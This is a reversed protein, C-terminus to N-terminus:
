DAINELYKLLVERGRVQARLVGMFIFVGGTKRDLFIIERPPTRWSHTRLVTIIKKSARQPLDSAKWDYNGSSDFSGPPVRPDEPELFPEVTEFCFEEFLARLSPDDSPHIFNLVMAANRFLVEDGNVAGKIMQRYANMFENPYERTAGFDFLIIQDSGNPSLRIRYNGLHPDTQVINWEFLEKFYLDLYSLALRNRRELSLNEIQESDIRFGDEYSLALIKKNSFDRYVKPIVFRSDEKLKDYFAETRDAELDYNMEQLLMDQIETFLPSLNLDKPILKLTGLLHRLAKLDSNIAKDVHPYQIKLVIEEGTARIRARHVQGLSACSLAEQDIELQALQSESLNKKLIPEIAQWSLAPSDAQLKKLFENAEPPLFHEGYMSLMQGAKMLSGKLEGLESGILEAQNVLFSNWSNKNSSFTKKINHSALGAGANLTLKALSIGRSLVSSKIRNIKKRENKDSSM